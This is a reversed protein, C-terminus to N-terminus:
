SRRKRIYGGLGLIGMGVGLMTMPEPIVHFGGDDNSKATWDKNSQVLDFSAWLHAQNGDPDTLLPGAETLVSGWAGENPDINIYVTTNGQFFGGPLIFDGEFRFFTAVGKLLLEKTADGSDVWNGYTSQTDRRGPEYLPGEFDTSTTGAADNFLKATDVAWLEFVADEVDVKFADLTADTIEVRRDWGGYFTGVLGTDSVGSGWQYTPFEGAKVDVHTAPNNVPVGPRITDIAFVGWTDEEDNWRGPAPDPTLAAGTGQGPGWADGANARVWVDEEDASYATGNEHNTAQFFNWGNTLSPITVAGAPGAVLIVLGLMAILKLNRM